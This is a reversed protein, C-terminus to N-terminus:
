HHVEAFYTDPREQDFVQSAWFLVVVETDGTNLISHTSGPPIDVVRMESGEIDFTTVQDDKMRRLSVQARGEVVMFKEVKLHHYHNGRTVGPRTRSVFIQGSHASKVFEALAGREDQRQQLPYALDRPDAYSLYTSYLREVLPASLDPLTGSNRVDEFSAITEALEGVTTAFTRLNDEYRAGPLQLSADIEIILRDVVDDVHVLRLEASPDNVPLTMGRWANHCFTAVVSNYNPRSWKGFVNPLRLIVAEAAADEAYAALVLEAEHKSTGYPNDLAAQISSTMVVKISKGLEKLRECLEQTFGRNGSDFESPDTPRNVGALHIVVDSQALAETLAHDPDGLDYGFVILDSRESLALLLNSGIFGRSGTVLVRKVPNTKKDTGM